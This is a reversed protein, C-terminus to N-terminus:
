SKVSVKKLRLELNVLHDQWDAKTEFSLSKALKVMAENDLLTQGVLRSIGRARCYGILREMLVHGVGRGHWDSRVIIAFEAEVGDADSVARAVGLTEGHGDAPLTTAVLAMERDYDIQTLRALQEHTMDNMARFFRFYLDTPSLQSIFKQHAPEDEPRIPRIMMRTGDIEVTEELERPYPRIALRDTGSSGTRAVRIRADLALVGESDALLPNIDLEAIEPHDCILQSIKVLTLYIADVDAGPVDRYGHLLRSIRTRAVLQEALAMNLPPLSVARDGIIEVSTGGQGFLIVPGFIPDEAVGVILEWARPRRMMSQVTFGTIRAEPKLAHVRSRMSDVARALADQSEIDLAVGGVDSKHSIDPSLIKLAVPYGIEGALEAAQAGDRAIRTDVVPIDYAALVSKAEAEDLLERGQGLVTDILTRVPAPQPHFDEPMSAPTQMLSYQNEQYESMQLFARVAAGPTEYGPIGADAFVRRAGEVGDGGLWCTLVPKRTATIEPVLERAVAENDVMATPVLMVLLGDYNRHALLIRLVKLYREPDADGIIDVPNGRSWNAPLVADLESLLDPDLDALIGGQEVLHDVALVGPGGGNTLIVLRRGHVPRAHALTEAAGFLDEISYVRLMGARRIAADFVDDRGALAGTHSAAARAGERFRGSKIVIVSKNRATARAASLFKRAERISEMYLLIGRTAPDSGLYDLVDGFDIDACDGLSVFCSFGIGRSRAWDLISTCLAGSQSVVALKGPLPDVHAFSANLSQGPVMLGVCNPGLIRLGHPRAADLMQQELSKGQVERRLGASLVVAAKTGKEGLQGVLDPVTDAPTCIVALDPAAPLAAADPYAQMDLVTQYKPNVPYVPGKFSGRQLNRMVVQGLKAPNDSAGLVAVSAPRFLYDLNFVSM